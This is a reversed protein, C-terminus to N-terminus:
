PTGDMISDHQSTIKPILFTFCHQITYLTERLSDFGPRTRPFLVILKGVIVTVSPLPVDFWPFHSLFFKM